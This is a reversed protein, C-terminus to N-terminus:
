DKESTCLLTSAGEAVVTNGVRCVTDFIVRKKEVFVERVIVTATVTDGPRVVATFKLTQGLYLCGPGPMKNGLVASVLSATLMGHAVRGGFRTTKAYEDNIHLPNVDTSVACFMLIDADTITKTFSESMGPHLDEINYGQFKNM